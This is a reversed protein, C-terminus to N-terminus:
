HAVPEGSALRTARRKSIRWRVLEILLTVSLATGLAVLFAVTHNEAFTRGGINGLMGAYTAWILGGLITAVLFGPWPQRTIGSTLTVGTRGGPVFRATVILMKGRRALQRRAWELRVQRSGGFFKREIWPGAKRGLVYSMNDGGVAGAAGCAIVLGIRMSGSSALVGGLIVLSESPVIPIVSDLFAILAILAYSWWSGDIWEELTDFM